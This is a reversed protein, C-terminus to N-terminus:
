RMWGMGWEIRDMENMEDDSGVWGSVIRCVSSKMGPNDMRHIMENEDRM